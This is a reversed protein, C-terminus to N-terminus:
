QLRVALQELSRVLFKQVFYLAFFAVIPTLDFGGQVLFPLRKRFWGLLPDTIRRLFVVFQNSSRPAFWSIVVVAFLALIYLFLALDIIGALTSLFNGIVFM